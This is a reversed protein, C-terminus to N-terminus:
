EEKLIFMHVDPVYLNFFGKGGKINTPYNAPEGLFELFSLRNDVRMKMFRYYEESINSLSVLVTDGAAYDRTMFEFQSEFLLGNFETDELLLTFAEPNIRYRKFDESKQVNLMYRNREAPDRISYHVELLTDDYIDSYLGAEVMEFEVQTQVSSSGYVTGLSQSVIHLEYTEGEEFPIYVAGYFGHELFTLTDTGAPGTLTIVADNVALQKLLEEPDNEEIADLAGFTRTLWVLLSEDSIMQTAVVIQAEVQPINKVELPEPLCSPLLFFLILGYGGTLLLKNIKKKMLWHM